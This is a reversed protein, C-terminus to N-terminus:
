ALPAANPQPAGPYGVGLPRVPSYSDSSAAGAPTPNEGGEVMTSQGVSGQGTSGQGTSEAAGNGPGEAALVASEAPAQQPGCRAGPPLMLQAAQVPPAPAVQVSPTLKPGSCGLALVWAFRRLQREMM